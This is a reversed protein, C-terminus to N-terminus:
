RNDGSGSLVGRDKRSQLKELNGGAVESFDFGLDDCLAALYWVVDGLEKRLNIRRDESFEGKEDRLAKKVLELVEGVEGSLGLAPYIVKFEDPYIRTAASQEQYDDFTISEM